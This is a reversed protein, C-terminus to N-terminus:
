KKLLIEIATTAQYPDPVHRKPKSKKTYKKVIGPGREDGCSPCIQIGDDLNQYKVGCKDCNNM